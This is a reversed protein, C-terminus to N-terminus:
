AAEEWEVRGNRSVVRGIGSGPFHGCVLLCDADVLEEVLEARTSTQPLDDFAFVWEPRDLLAPHPAIDAFLEAAAGRSRVVLGVHGPTHGPLLRTRIGRALEVDDGPWEFRGALPEVCRRRHPSDPDSRAWTLADPHVLYRARPFFPAGDEDTNWGIHDVHLHTLFVVDISEPGFGREELAAPLLGEREPAWFGWLGPPGVGTDVLVTTDESRLLHVIVPLRWRTGAFVEPYLGRYRDWDDAQVEPYAESLDALQGVADLLPVIEVNGVLV